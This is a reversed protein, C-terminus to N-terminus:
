VIRKFMKEVQYKTIKVSIPRGHPCTSIGEMALARGILIEMEKTSLDKNAKIASKCALTYLARDRRDSIEGKGDGLLDGTVELFLGEGESGPCDSPVSRLLVTNEGSEDFDFGMNELFDRNENAADFEKPSLTVSLPIMLLQPAAKGGNRRLEEYRVREHAAHQDVLIMEGEGEAVIYTSFLQGIIRVEVPEPEPEPM